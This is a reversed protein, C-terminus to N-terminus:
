ACQAPAFFWCASFATSREDGTLWHTGRRAGMRATPRERCAEDERSNEVLTCGTSEARRLAPWCRGRFGAQWRVNRRCRCGGAQRRKRGTIGNSRCQGAGLRSHHRGSEFLHAQCRRRRECRASVELSSRQEMPLIDGIAVSGVPKGDYLQELAPVVRNRQRTAHTDGHIVMTGPKTQSPVRILTHADYLFGVRAGSVRGVVNKGDVGNAEGFFPLIEIKTGHARSSDFGACLTALVVVATLVNRHM